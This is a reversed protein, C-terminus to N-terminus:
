GANWPMPWLTLLGRLLGGCDYRRCESVNYFYNPEERGGLNRLRFIRCEVCRGSVCTKCISFRLTLAIQGQPFSPLEWHSAQCRPLTEHMNAFAPRGKLPLRFVGGECAVSWLGSELDLHVTHLPSTLALLVDRALSSQKLMYTIKELNLVMICVVKKLWLKTWPASYDLMRWRSLCVGLWKRNGEQLWESHCQLSYTIQVIIDAGSRHRQIETSGVDWHNADKTELIAYNLLNYWLRDLTSQLSPFHTVLGFSDRDLRRSISPAFAQNKSAGLCGGEENAAEKVKEVEKTSWLAHRKESWGDFKMASKMLVFM